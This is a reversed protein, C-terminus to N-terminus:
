NELLLLFLKMFTVSDGQGWFGWHFLYVFPHFGSRQYEALLQGTGFGVSEDKRHLTVPYKM